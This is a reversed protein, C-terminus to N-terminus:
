KQKRILLADDAAQQLMKRNERFRLYEDFDNSVPGYYSVIDLRRHSMEYRNAKDTLISDKSHNIYSKQFFRYLDPNKRARVVGPDIQQDDM